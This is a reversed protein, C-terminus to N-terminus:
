KYVTVRARLIPVSHYKGQSFEYVILRVRLIRESHTKGHSLCGNIAKGPTYKASLRVWLKRHKAFKTVSIGFQCYLKSGAM